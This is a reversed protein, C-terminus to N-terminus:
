HPSRKIKMGLKGGILRQRAQEMVPQWDPHHSDLKEIYRLMHRNLDPHDPGLKDIIAGLEAALTLGIELQTPVPKRKAPPNKRPSHHHPTTRAM